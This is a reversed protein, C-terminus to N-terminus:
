AQLLLQHGMRTAKAPEGPEPAPYLLYGALLLLVACSAKFNVVEDNLSLM